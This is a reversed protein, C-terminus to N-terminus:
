PGLGARRMARVTEDLVAAVDAFDVPSARLRALPPLGEAPTTALALPYEHTREVLYAQAEEGLLFRVLEAARPDDSLVGVGAVDVFGAGEGRTMFFATVRGQPGSARWVHDHSALGWPVEGRAVGGVLSADDPYLRPQNDRMGALLRELAEEGELVRYAALQARFSVSGPALGFRGRYRPDAVSELSEPLDAPRTAAADYVVVRARGSIGVWDRRQEGGTYRWPVRRVLEMPLERLLAKRSLAGLAAAHQALFLDAPTSTGEEMLAAVLEGSEGYRVEVRM